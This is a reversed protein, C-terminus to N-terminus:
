KLSGSSWICTCLSILSRAPHNEIKAMLKYDM